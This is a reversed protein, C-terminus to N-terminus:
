VGIGTWHTLSMYAAYVMAALMLLLVVLALAKLPAYLARAEM